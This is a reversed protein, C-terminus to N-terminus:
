KTRYLKRFIICKKAVTSFDIKIM